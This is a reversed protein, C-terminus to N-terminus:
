AIFYMHESSFCSVGADNSHTCRDIQRYPGHSCSLLSSENGKCAVNTFFIDGYGPGYGYQNPNNWAFVDGTYMPILLICANQLRLALALSKGNYGLQRCVVIANILSWGASCVTGFTNGYLM